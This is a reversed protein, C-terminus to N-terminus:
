PDEYALSLQAQYASQIQRHLPINQLYTKHFPSNAPILAHKRMMEDYARQRFHAAEATRGNAALVQSHTFFIKESVCEVIQTFGFREFIALSRQSATLAQQRRAEQEDVNGIQNVLTLHARAAECAAAMEFQHTVRPREAVLQEVKAAYELARYLDAEEGITNHLIASVLYTGVNAAEYLEPVQIQYAKDLAEKAAELQGQAVYIQVMRLWVFREGPYNQYVRLSEELLALGAEYAGLYIGQLQGCLM